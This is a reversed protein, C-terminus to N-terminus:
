CAAITDLEILNAEDADFRLDDLLFHQMSKVSHIRLQRTLVL